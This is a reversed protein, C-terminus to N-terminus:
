RMWLILDDGYSYQFYQVPDCRLCGKRWEDNSLHPWVGQRIVVCVQEVICLTGAIRTPVRATRALHSRTRICNDVRVEAYM